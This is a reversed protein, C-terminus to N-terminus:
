DKLKDIIVTACQEPQDLWPCHGANEILKFTHNEITKAKVVGTENSEFADQDGWIFHVPMKLQNLQDTLYLKRRWGKLTLVTELMTRRATATGPLLSNYYCHEIYEDSLKDADAVLISQHIKRTGDISPKGVTKELLKNLGKVGLLRLIPPVWYNMGAPAGILLLKEVREPYELAHCISFYGGMSNGMFLAKELGVGDMFSHIFDVASKRYDIGNYNIPDTLGHGPRDVVYLHFHESLPKLMNIWESSHSLGGHVIIFPKGNGLKLYHVKKVAGKTTVTKSQPSIGAQEFLFDRTEQYKNVIEM